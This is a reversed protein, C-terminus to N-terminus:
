MTTLWSTRAAQSWHRRARDVSAPATPEPSVALCRLAALVLEVILERLSAEPVRTILARVTSAAVSATPRM